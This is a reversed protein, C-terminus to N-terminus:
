SIVIYNGPVLDLFKRFDEIYSSCMKAVEMHQSNYVICTYIPLGVFDQFRGITSLSQELFYTLMEKSAVSLQKVTERFCDRILRYDVDKPHIMVPPLRKESNFLTYKYGFSDLMQRYLVALDYKKTISKGDFKMCPHTFDYTHGNFIYKM